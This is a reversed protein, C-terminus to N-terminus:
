AAANIAALLADMPMQVYRKTTEPRSHGLLEGVALLDRTGAYARTAMRHRLTHGTWGDPLAASLIHTVTSPSLHGDIRGPFLWGDARAFTEVLEPHVIPVVRAKGGKGTVHLLGEVLDSSRARSIEACRLGAYAALLLMTRTRQDAGALARALVKEPAPRPRGVPVTIAPLNAAPNAPTYGETHAWRYFSVYVARASKRTEPGWRHTALATRLQVPTARWPSRAHGTLHHLYHRHLRITGPSRGAARLMTTYEATADTWTAPM